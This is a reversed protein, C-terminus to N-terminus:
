AEDGLWLTRDSGIARQASEIERDLLRHETAVRHLRLSFLIVMLLLAILLAYFVPGLLRAPYQFAAVGMLGLLFALGGVPILQKRVPLDGELGRREELADLREFPTTAAITRQLLETRRASLRRQARVSGVGILPITVALAAWRLVIPVGLFSGLGALTLISMATMVSLSTWLEAREEGPPTQRLANVNRGVFVAFVVSLGILLLTM